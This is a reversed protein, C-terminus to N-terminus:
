SVDCAFMPQMMIWNGSFTLISISEETTDICSGVSKGLSMAEPGEHRCLILITNLVAWRVQSDAKKQTFGLAQALRGVARSKVEEEARIYNFIEDRCWKIKEVLVWVSFTLFKKNSEAYVM